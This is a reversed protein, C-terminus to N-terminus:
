FWISLAIVLVTAGLLGLTFNEVGQRIPPAKKPSRAFALCKQALLAWLAAPILWPVLLWPNSVAFGLAAFTLGLTVLGLVLVAVTPAV